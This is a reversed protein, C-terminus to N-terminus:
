DTGAVAERILSSRRQLSLPHPVSSVLNLFPVPTVPKAVWATGCHLLAVTNRTAEASCPPSFPSNAPPPPPPQRHGELEPATARPRVCCWSSIDCWRIDAPLSLIVQDAGPLVDELSFRTPGHQILCPCCVQDGHLCVYFYVIRNSWVPTLEASADSLFALSYKPIIFVRPQM